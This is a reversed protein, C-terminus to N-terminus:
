KFPFFFSFIVVADVSCQLSPFSIVTNNNNSDCLVIIFTLVLEM